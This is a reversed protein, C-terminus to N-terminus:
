WDEEDEGKVEMKRKKGGVKGDGKAKSGKV